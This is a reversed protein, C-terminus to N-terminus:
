RRFWGIARALPGPRPQATETGAWALQGIRDAFEAADRHVFLTPPELHRTIAQLQQVDLPRPSKPEDLVADIRRLTEEFTPRSRNTEPM